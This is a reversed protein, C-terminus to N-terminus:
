ASEFRVLFRRVGARMPLPAYGAARRGYLAEIAVDLAKPSGVVGRGDHARQEPQVAVPEGERGPQSTSPPSSIM